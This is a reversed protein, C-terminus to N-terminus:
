AHQRWGLAAALLLGWAVAAVLTSVLNVTGYTLGMRALGAGSHAIAFSVLPMLLGRLLFFFLAIILLLSPRPHRQWRLIAVVGGIIWVLFLPIQYVYHTLFLSAATEMMPNNEVKASIDTV